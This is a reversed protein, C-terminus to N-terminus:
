ACTQDTLVLDFQVSSLVYGPLKMSYPPSRMQNLLAKEMQHIHENTEAMSIYNEKLEAPILQLCIAKEEETPAPTPEEFIPDDCCMKGEQFREESMRQECSYCLRDEDEDESEEVVSHCDCKCGDDGHYDCDCCDDDNVTMTNSLRAADVKIKSSVGPWAENVWTAFDTAEAGRVKYDYAIRFSLNHM